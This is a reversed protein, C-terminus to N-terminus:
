VPQQTAHAYRSANLRRQLAPVQHHCASIQRRPLGLSGFFGVGEGDRGARGPNDSGWAARQRDTHHAAANKRTVSLASIPTGESIILGASARQAYYAAVIDTPAREDDCCARVLPVMVIGV